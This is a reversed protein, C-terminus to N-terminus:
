MSVAFGQELIASNSRYRSLGFASLEDQGPGAGLATIGLMRLATNIPSLVPARTEHHGLVSPRMALAGDIWVAAAQWGETEAFDTAIWALASGKSAQLAFAADTTTLLPGASLSGFELWEGTGNAAHLDEYVAETLPVAFVSADPTLAVARAMPVRSLVARLAAKPGVLLALRHGAGTTDQNVM